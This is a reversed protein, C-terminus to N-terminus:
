ATKNGTRENNRRSRRKEESRCITSRVTNGCKRRYVGRRLPPTESLIIALSVGRFFWKIKERCKDDTERVLNEINM